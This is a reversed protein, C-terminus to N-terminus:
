FEEPDEVDGDESSQEFGCETCCLDTFNGRDSDYGETVLMSLAKCELCDETHTECTTM